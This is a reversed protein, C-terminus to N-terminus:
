PATDITLPEHSRLQLSRNRYRATVARDTELATIRGQRHRAIFGTEDSFTLEPTGDGDLDLARAMGGAYGRGIAIRGSVRVLPSEFGESTVRLGARVAAASPGAANRPYVFVTGALARVPKIWGASDKVADDDLSVAPAGEFLYTQEDGAAPGGFDYGSRVIGPEVTLRLPGRGDDELVPLTLGWEPANEATTRVLIGDPTLTLNLVFGPGSASPKPAYTIACLVLAPTALSTEFKGEYREPVDALRVWRAGARWTPGFTVGRQSYTDRAGDLPGLRSDWAARSFRAIGLPTWYRNYKAPDIEGRLNAMMQMGGANAFASAFQPDNAFAYGGTEAPAPAEEIESHRAEFAEALHILVAGNYNTWQSAPQYGTRWENPFFNKTVMFAGDARQWRLASLFALSAARRYQAALKSDGRALAREAEMEFCLQYLIDNWVHNDTRGNAPGQGTPDQLLLSMRTARTILKDMEAASPGDYGTAILGLLNGRGVAEVAQSNPDSSTDLYLNWRSRTLRERQFDRWSSEIYEVAPARQALGARVRMWEGRMAYARWNNLHQRYGDTVELVPALLRRRWEDWQAEPAIGRYLELAGALAPIYFEGHRDPIAAAGGAFSRTSHEMARLGATRLDAARGSKLLLGLAHAFYPTAYQFERRMWPDIIAGQENQLLAMARVGRELPDLFSARTLGTPKWARPVTRWGTDPLTPPLADQAPAPTLTLLVFLALPKV